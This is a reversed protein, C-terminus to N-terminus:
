FTNLFIEASLINAEHTWKDIEYMLILHKKCDSEDVCLNYYM